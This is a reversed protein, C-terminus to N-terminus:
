RSGDENRAPDARGADAALDCDLRLRCSGCANQKECVLRGNRMALLAAAAGLTVVCATRAATVLLSRRTSKESTNM